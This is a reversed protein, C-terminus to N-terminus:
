ALAISEIDEYVPGEATLTSEKLKVCDVKFSGFVVDKNELALRRLSNINRSSKIRAIAVHPVFARGEGKADLLGSVEASLRKLEDSGQGIGAWFTSIKSESPFFGVGRIEAEFQSFCLAKLAEAKAKAEADPIEGLFVLTVHMNQSSVVTCDIDLSPIKSSIEAIRARVEAPIEM